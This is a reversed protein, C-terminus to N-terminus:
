KWPSFPTKGLVNVTYPDIWSNVSIVFPDYEELLGDFIPEFHDTQSVRNSIAILADVISKVKLLYDNM